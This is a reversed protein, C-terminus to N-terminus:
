HSRLRSGDLEAVLCFDDTGIADRVQDAAAGGTCRTRSESPSLREHAQGERDVGHRIRRAAEVDGVSMDRARWGIGIAGGVEGTGDVHANGCGVFARRLETAAKHVASVERDGVLEVDVHQCSYILRRHNGRVATVGDSGDRYRLVDVATVVTVATSGM